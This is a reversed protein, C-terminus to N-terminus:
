SSDFDCNMKKWFTDEFMKRMGKKLCLSNIYHLMSFDLFAPVDRLYGPLGCPTTAKKLNNKHRVLINHETTGRMSLADALEKNMSTNGFHALQKHFQELHSELRRSEFVSLQHKSDPNPKIERYVRVDPPDQLYRLVPGLDGIADVTKRTFLDKGDDDERSQFAEQFQALKTAIVVPHHIEKRLYQDYRQKWKKSLRLATIQASSLPTGDTSLTGTLLAQELKALDVANYQYFCKCLEDKAEWYLKMDVKQWTRTVRQIAHFLGLRGMLDHGFLNHMEKLNVPMNDTWWLKPCFGRKIALEQLGHMVDSIKTTDVLYLGATEGTSIKITFCAKCRDNYNKTVAFTHDSCITETDISPNCSGVSQLERNYRQVNSYMYLNNANEADMYLKRITEGSPPPRHMWEQLSYPFTPCKSNASSVYSEVMRLYRKAALQYLKRSFFNGNAYTTMIADLEDSAAISMHFSQNVAYRVDVPYQQRIHPALKLLLRADNARFPKNCKLCKYNMVSGFTSCGNAELIPFLTKNHSFNTRTHCWQWECCPSTFQLEPYMSLWDLMFIRTGELAHYHPNPENSLDKPFVFFCQGPPLYTERQIRQQCNQYSNLQKNTDTATLSPRTPQRLKTQTDIFRFLLFLNLPVNAKKFHNQSKTDDDFKLMEKELVTRLLTGLHLHEKMFEVPPETAPTPTAPTPTPPTTPTSDSPSSTDQNGNSHPNTTSSLMARIDAGEHRSGPMKVIPTNNHAINRKMIQDIINKSRRKPCLLHHAIHPVSSKDIVGLNVENWAKCLRCHVDVHFAERNFLTRQTVTKHKFIQRSRAARAAATASARSAKIAGKRIQSQCGMTNNNNDNEKNTHNHTRYALLPYQPIGSYGTNHYQAGGTVDGMANQGTADQTGKPAAAYQVNDNNNKKYPNPVTHRSSM